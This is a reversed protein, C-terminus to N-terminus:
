IHNFHPQGYSHGAWDEEQLLAFTGQLIKGWAGKHSQDSFFLERIELRTLHFNVPFTVVDDLIYPVVFENIQLTANAWQMSSMLDM